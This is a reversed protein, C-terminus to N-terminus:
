LVDMRIPSVGSHITGLVEAAGMSLDLIRDGVFPGRDTIRVVVSRGNDLNTVRVRTGFPLHRHAATLGYQNYREGSATYNGHFGPGYWSAWGNVQFRVPGLAIQTAKPKPMGEITKLPGANGLQYRLRNTIQLADQAPDKTTTPLVTDKGVVELLHQAKTGIMYSQRKGNWTVKIAKADFNAPNLQNLRAAITSARWVPDAKNGDTPQTLPGVEPNVTAVKVGQKQAADLQRGLFTVIPINRVYITSAQRGALPHVKITAITKSLRTGAGSSRREGVKTAATPQASVKQVKVSPHAAEQNAESSSLQTTTTVTLAAAIGTLIVRKM